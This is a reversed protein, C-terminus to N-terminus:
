LAPAAKAMRQQAQQRQRRPRQGTQYPKPERRAADKAVAEHGQGQSQADLKGHHHYAPLRTGM